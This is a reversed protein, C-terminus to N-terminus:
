SKDAWSQGIVVDAIFPVGPCMQEAIMEMTNKVFTAVDQAIEDPVHLVVEDHIPAVIAFPYPDFCWTQHMESIAKKMMDAATGQIPANLKNRDSQDSYSNIWIRRGYVTEVFKKQKYQKAQWASVGPFTHMAKKLMEKAEEVTVDYKKSFGWETLGYVMGLFVDKMKRREPSKKDIRKGFMEYYMESYVDKKENFIRMLKEDQTVYATIRPEQASYDGIVLKHGAPAEYCARFEPRNPQNQINPDTASTRGTEAQNININPYIVPYGEEYEMYDDILNMGYTSAMKQYSRADLISSLIKCDEDDPHKAIYESLNAEDTSSIKIKRGKAWEMIQKPSKFNFPLGAGIQEAHFKNSEALAEIKEPNIPFGRFDMVAWAFPMDINKWVNFSNHDIQKRQEIGIKRTVLSDMCSYYIAEDNLETANEFYRQMSKDLEFNLYRRTLDALDFGDYYGGFMIKEVYLTDWWKKRPPIPVYRRLQTFDFKGNQTVWVCDKMNDLAPQIHEPNTLIYVDEDNPCITLCAFRGYTPRHLQKKKMGFMEIDLSVFCNKDQQPPIGQIINM